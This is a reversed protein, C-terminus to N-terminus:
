VTEGVEPTGSDLAEIAAADLFTDQDATKTSKVTEENKKNQKKNKRKPGSNIFNLLDDVSRDDELMPDTVTVILVNGKPPAAVVEGGGKRRNMKKQLRHRTAFTPSYLDNGGHPFSDRIEDSTKGSM